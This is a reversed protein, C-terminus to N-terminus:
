LFFLLTIIAPSHVDYSYNDYILPSAKYYGLKLNRQKLYFVYIKLNLLMVTYKLFLAM